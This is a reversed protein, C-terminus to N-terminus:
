VGITYQAGVLNYMCNFSGVLHWPGEAVKLTLRKGQVPQIRTYINQAARPCRGGTPLM